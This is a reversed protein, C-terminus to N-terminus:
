VMLMIGGLSTWCRSSAEEGFHRSLSDPFDSHPDSRVYIPLAFRRLPAREDREATEHFETISCKRLNWVTEPLHIRRLGSAVDHM